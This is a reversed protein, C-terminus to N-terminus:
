GLCVKWPPAASMTNLKHNQLAQQKNIKLSIFFFLLFPENKHCPFGSRANWLSPSFLDLVAGLVLVKDMSLECLRPLLSPIRAPVTPHDRNAEGPPPSSAPDTPNTNASSEPDSGRGWTEPPDNPTRLAVPALCFKGTTLRQQRAAEM